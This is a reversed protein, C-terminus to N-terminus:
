KIKMIYDIYLTAQMNNISQQTVGGNLSGSTTIALTQSSGTFTASHNHSGASGTTGTNWQGTYGWNTDADIKVKSYTNSIRGYSHSHSGNSGITVTGKPTYSLTGTTEMSVNPLQNRNLKVTNAGVTTGISDVSNAMALVRNRMDPLTKGNLPSDADNVMSGDCLMWGDPIALDYARGYYAQITGIPISDFVAKASPIQKHTSNSNVTKTMDNSTLEYNWGGWEGFGDNTENAGINNIYIKSDAPNYFIVQRYHTDQSVVLMAYGYGGSSEPVNSCNECYIFNSSLTKYESNLCHALLDNDKLEYCDIYHKSFLENIAGIITKDITNLIVSDDSRLLDIIKNIADKINNGIKLQSEGIVNYFIDTTVIGELSMGTTITIEECNSKSSGLYMTQVWKGLAEAQVEVETYGEPITSTITIDLTYRIEEGTERSTLIATLTAGREDAIYQVDYDGGEGITIDKTSEFIYYKTNLNFSYKGTPYSGDPPTLVYKWATNEGSGDVQYYYWVQLSTSDEKILPKTWRKEILSSQGVLSLLWESRTGTFGEEVAEQYAGNGKVGKLCGIRVWTNNVNNADSRKYLDGTLTNLYLDNVRSYNVGDVLVEFVISDGTLDEGEWFINGRLNHSTTSSTGKEDKRIINVRYSYDNNNALPTITTDAPKMNPTKIQQVINGNDDYTTIALRYILDTNGVDETITVKPSRLNSTIIEHEIDNVDKYIFKIKFSFENSEVVECTVNTGNFRGLNKSTSDTYYVIIDGNSDKDIHDIGRSKLEESTFSVSTETDKGKNAYFVLGNDDTREVSVDGTEISSIRKSLMAYVKKADLM